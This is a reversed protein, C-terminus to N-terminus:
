GSCPKERRQYSSKKMDASQIRESFFLRIMAGAAVTSAMTKPVRAAIPRVRPSNRPLASTILRSIEGM